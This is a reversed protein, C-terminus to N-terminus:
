VANRSTATFLLLDIEEYVAEPEKEQAAFAELRAMGAEFESDAMIRFPGM